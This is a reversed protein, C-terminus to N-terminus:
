KRTVGQKRFADTLVVGVLLSHMKDQNAGSAKVIDDVSCKDALTLGRGLAYTLLKEAFSRIFDPKKALLIAKLEGPGSFKTGDSLIGSSDVEGAEDNYRWQGIASYNELGFGIPDLQDHCSACDPSKRHEALQERISRPASGKAKEKLQDAGPPPPPPASGLIQELVYKGRKTPSTRTPNSTLCLTSGLTVVGGRRTKDVKVLRFESGNVDPIDYYYALKDNVFTYDCDLFDTTPRNERTVYDFLMLAERRMASKIAGDFQNFLKRDPNFNSFKPLLLWQAGFGNVFAQARKDAVMRRVQAELVKADQLQNKAALTLLEADPMSSWLFYSLRSAMEYGTLDRPKGLDSEVRFLFHPSTLIAQVGLQMCREFPEKNKQGLKFVQMVRETEESTVPRRFAKSAFESLYRRGFNMEEGVPPRSPIIRRHTEPLRSPDIVGTPGTLEISLVILNRDRNAPNPDNANYYDNTFAVAIRHSGRELSVPIEFDTPKDPKQPVDFSQAPKGDVLIVMKCADPGAQNGCARVKLRYSGGIEVPHVVYVEGNVFLVSGLETINRGKEALLGEGEYATAQPGGAIIAREAIKEAAQLYKELLLPSVTLVDGINDFGYGVDDSPFDETEKFEIGVLDRITNAYETRNLRRLTVRGPDPIKCDGSLITELGEIMRNREARTPQKANTPPMTGAKLAIIVREIEKNADRVDTETRYILPNIAGPPNKSDHCAGCYTQLVPLVDRKYDPTQTASEGLLMAGFALLGLGFLFGLRGVSFM